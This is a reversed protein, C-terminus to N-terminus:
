KMEYRHDCKNTYSITQNLALHKMLERTLQTTPHEM